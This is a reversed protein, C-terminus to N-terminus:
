DKDKHIFYIGAVAFLVFLSILAYVLAILGAHGEKIKFLSIYWDYIVPCFALFLIALLFFIFAILKNKM